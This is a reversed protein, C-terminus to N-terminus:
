CMTFVFSHWWMTFTEGEFRLEIPRHNYNQRHMEGGTDGWPLANCFIM